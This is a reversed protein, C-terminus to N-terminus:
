STPFHSSLVKNQLSYCFMLRSLREGTATIQCSNWHWRNCLLSMAMASCIWLWYWPVYPISVGQDQLDTLLFLLKRKPKLNQAVIIMRHVIKRNKQVLGGGSNHVIRICTQVILVGVTGLRFSVAWSVFNFGITIFIRDVLISIPMRYVLERLPYLM